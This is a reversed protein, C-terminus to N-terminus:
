KRVAKAPYSLHGKARTPLTYVSHGATLFLTSNKKGGWTLNAPQHPLLVTGLHKGAPSWVWIGGPGTVYLNGKKDTKMGDPVGRKGPVNEDAFIVGESLAAEHFRYRRINKQASDDIYLFKGDPSFALGNPQQLDKTLLTVTGKSDLRYVGQFPIEQKEGKVLDLTPDTFYIADDPGMTVDNPSNLRQGEYHDALVDYSKMDPSLRIIARLVSATVILRHERDFTNGDPDGLSILEERRGDPFLRYIFNKTEDSVLLSGAPGWVPGETFGFGDGMTGLKADKDFLKWFAADEAKLEFTQEPARQQAALPMALLLAVCVLRRM